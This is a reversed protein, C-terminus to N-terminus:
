AQRKRFNSLVPFYQLRTDVGIWIRHAGPQRSFVCKQTEM